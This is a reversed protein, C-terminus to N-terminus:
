IKWLVCFENQYYSWSLSLQEHLISFLADLCVSKKKGVSAGKPTKPPFDYFLSVLFERHKDDRCWPHTRVFEDFTELNRALLSRGDLSLGIYVGQNRLRWDTFVKSADCWACTASLQEKGKLRQRRLFLGQAVVLSFFFLVKFIM